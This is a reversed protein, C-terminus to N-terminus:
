DRSGRGTKEYRFVRSLGPEMKGQEDYAPEATFINTSDDISTIPAIHIKEVALHHRSIELIGLECGIM